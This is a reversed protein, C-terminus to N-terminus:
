ANPDYFHIHNRGSEKAQYMATDARKVIEGQSLEDNVFITVGISATCYHEVTTDPKGEHEITLLYPKSLTERIKEAIVEAESTSEAKDEALENIMIVFEDGGLRAVTDMDRVCKKLRDGVEILLLDGVAHGHTDNLPKFNDLDLFILAGYRRTRKSAAMVQALRDNLLRRNPLNTLADYFALQRVREELQKREAENAYLKKQMESVGALISNEMGPAFRITTTLDGRGIRLLIEQVKEASAGLTTRLVMYARWLMFTAVLTAVIFILRFAYAISGWTHVTALTRKDMMVLFENIPQMINAKIQHYNKDYLMLRGREHNAEAEPGISEVLRMAEFEVATLEDSINKAQALKTFEGETFGAQRMLELLPIGQGSEAPPPKMNSLVLDWYINSYGEPRPIKGNRIDLIDYFCKKYRPDGTVAYTRIMRTLEDSSRRLEDALQYSVLRRENARDLQKETYVYVGFVASLLVFAVTTLVIKKPLASFKNLIM